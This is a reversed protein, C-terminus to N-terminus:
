NPVLSAADGVAGLRSRRKLNLDIQLSEWTEVNVVWNVVLKYRVYVVDLIQREYELTM